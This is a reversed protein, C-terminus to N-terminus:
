SVIRESQLGNQSHDHATSFPVSARHACHIAKGPDTVELFRRKLRSFGAAATGVGFSSELRSELRAPERQQCWHLVAVPM